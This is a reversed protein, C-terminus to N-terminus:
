IAICSLITTEKYVFPCIYWSIVKVVFWVKMESSIASSIFIFHTSSLKQIRIYCATMSFLDDIICFCKWLVFQVVLQSSSRNDTVQMIVAIIFFHSWLGNSSLMVLVLIYNNSFNVGSRFSWIYANREIETELDFRAL